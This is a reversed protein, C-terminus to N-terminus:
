MDSVLVLVEASAVLISLAPPDPLVSKDSPLWDALPVDGDCAKGGMNWTGVCVSLIDAGDNIDAAQHV